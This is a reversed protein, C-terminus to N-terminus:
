KRQIARDLAQEEELALFSELNHILILGGHFTVVGDIYEAGHMINQAQILEDDSFEMVELVTDVVLAISRKSTSAIILHDTLNLDREHLRFRKRLNVLPIIRGGVNILGLVIAPAKPLSTYQVARVVREVASLHLAYHQDDLM